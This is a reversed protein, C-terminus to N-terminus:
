KWMFGDYSITGSIPELRVTHKGATIPVTATAESWQEGTSPLNALALLVNDVYVAVRSDIASRYHIQFGSHAARTAVQYDIKQPAGIYRVEFDNVGDDTQYIYCNHNELGVYLNAKVWQEADLWVSKDFTSLAQYTKGLPTLEIPEFHTLFQMFPKADVAISYTRPIFWAYREVKATMEFYNIVETTIFNEWACFETMWIPLNYKDFKNVFGILSSSNGMYCHIAIASVDTIPVLAFFEDLWKIPDGYGSLTGYNMAPAVIKLKLEDALAKLRPWAEAAQQPTMRAQDNLNPENFALLYKTDPHSAVWARIREESFSGNWAMPCFEVGRFRYLVEAYQNDIDPRWNYTWSIAPELLDADAYYTYTDQAVGRKPSKGMATVPEYSSNCSAEDDNDCGCFFM